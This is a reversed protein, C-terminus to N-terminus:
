SCPSIEWLVPVSFNISLGCSISLGSVTLGKLQQAIQVWVVQMQSSLEGWCSIVRNLGLRRWGVGCSLHAHLRQWPFAVTWLAEPSATRDWARFLRCQSSATLSIHLHCGKFCTESYIIQCCKSVLWTLQTKTVSEAPRSSRKGLIPEM